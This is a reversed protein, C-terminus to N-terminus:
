RKADAPRLLVSIAEGLIERTDAPDGATYTAVILVERGRKRGKQWLAALRDWRHFPPRAYEKTRRAEGGQWVAHFVALQLYERRFIFLTGPIEEPGAHFVASEQRAESWGTLPLCTDPTHGAALSPADRDPRWFFHYLLIERGRAANARWADAESCGLVRLSASPLEIRRVDWGAPTAQADVRWLPRMQAHTTSGLAAFWGWAAVPALAVLVWARAANGTPAAGLWPLTAMAPAPWGRSRKRALLLAVALVGLFILGSAAYGTTNHWREVQDPGGANAFAALVLTRGLNGLFALLAGAFVLAARDRTRFRALEGFFLSFVLSSQLSQAGSCAESVGVSGNALEIVNGSLIAPVGLANLLGTALGAVFRMLGQTIGAEIPGPWPAGLWALLITFLMARLLPRGGLDLFWGASLTSAGLALLYGVGRWNPDAQRFVEGLLFALGGAWALSRAAARASASPPPSRGTWARLRHWASVGALFPVLWGFQYQPNLDWDRSFHHWAWLWAAAVAAPWALGGLRARIM